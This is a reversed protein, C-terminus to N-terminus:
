WLMAKGLTTITVIMKDTRRDWQRDTQRDTVRQNQMLLVCTLIVFDEGYSLKLVGSM